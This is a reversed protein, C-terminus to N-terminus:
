GHWSLNSALRHAEARLMRLMVQPYALLFADLNPASLLLCRLTSEAVVDATPTKGLLISLEGFFDGRGLRALEQGGSRVSAAGDVIVFFGSGTFGQRLVRDAPAFTAEEFTHAVAELQPRSLDAFLSLGALTEVLEPMAM